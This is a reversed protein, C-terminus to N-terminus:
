LSKFLKLNIQSQLLRFVKKLINKKRITRIMIENQHHHDGIMILINESMIDKLLIVEAEVVTEIEPQVQVIVKNM